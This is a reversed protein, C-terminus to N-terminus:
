LGANRIRIECSGSTKQSGAAPASSARTVDDYNRLKQVELRLKPSTTLEANSLVPKGITSTGQPPPPAVSKPIMPAMLLSSDRYM